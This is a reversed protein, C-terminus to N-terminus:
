PAFEIRTVTGNDGSVTMTGELKEALSRVIRMGLTDGQAPDLEKPLGVGNDRVELAYRGPEVPLLSVVITGERGDAFAHKVANTLLETIILSLSTLRDMGIREVPAVEVRCVANRAGTADLLDRCIEEVLQGFDRRSNTPDYLRRHIRSLTELRRTAETLAARADAPSEIRRAQLTLLSSVFQMNNAVRHQLEHFMTRQQELALTARAREAEMQVATRALAEILIIVLAAGAGYAVLGAADGALPGWDERTRVLLYWGSVGGAIMVATGPKWGGLFTALVVGPLFILFPSAALPGVQLRIVLLGLFLAAALLGATTPERRALALRGLMEIVPSGM